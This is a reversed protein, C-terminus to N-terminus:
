PPRRHVLDPRDDIVVIGDWRGRVGEIEEVRASRPDIAFLRGDVGPRAETHQTRQLATWWPCSRGRAM